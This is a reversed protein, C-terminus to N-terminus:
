VQFMKDIDQTTFFSYFSEVDVNCTMSIPIGNEDFKSVLDASVSKVIIDELYMYKGVRMSIRRSDGFAAGIVTPGPAALVNGALGEGMETPAVLKLLAIHRKRIETETSEQANFVFDISFSMPSSAQWVQITQAKLKDAVGAVGPLNSIAAGAAGGVADGATQALSKAFPSDWQSSLNMNFREPLNAVIPFIKQGNTLRKMYNSPARVDLEVQYATNQVTPRIAVAPVVATNINKIVAM